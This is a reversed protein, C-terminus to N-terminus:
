LNHASVYVAGADEYIWSHPGYKRPGMQGVAGAERHVFTKRGALPSTALTRAGGQKSVQGADRRGYVASAETTETNEGMGSLAILQRVRGMLLASTGGAIGSGVRIDAFRGVLVSSLAGAGFLSAAQGWAPIPLYDAGWDLGGAVLGGVTGLGFAALAGTWNAAPNAIRLPYRRQYRQVAVRGSRRRRRRPNSRRRTRRRTPSRPNVLVVPMSTNRRRPSANRRRARPPNSRRRRRGGRKARAKRLNRLSAARQKRSQKM